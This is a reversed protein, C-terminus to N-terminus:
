NLINRAILLSEYCRFQLVKTCIIENSKKMKKISKKTFSKILIKRNSICRILLIFFIKSTQSKNIKCMASTSFYQFLNAESLDRYDACYEIYYQIINKQGKKIQPRNFKMFANFYFNCNEEIISIVTKNCKLLKHCDSTLKLYM